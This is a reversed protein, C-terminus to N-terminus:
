YGLPALTDPVFDGLLQLLINISYMPYIESLPFCLSVHRIKWTVPWWIHLLPTNDTMWMVSTVGINYLGTSLFLLFLINYIILM